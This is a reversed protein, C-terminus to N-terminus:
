SKQIQSTVTTIKEINRKSPFFRFGSFFSIACFIIVWSINGSIIFGIFGSLGIYNLVGLGIINFMYPSFFQNKRRIKKQILHMIGDIFFFVALGSLYLFYQISRATNNIEYFEPSPQYCHIKKLYVAILALFLPSFFFLFNFLKLIKENYKKEM